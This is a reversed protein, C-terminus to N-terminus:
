VALPDSLLSLTLIDLLKENHSFLVQFAIPFLKKREKGGKRGGWKGGDKGGEGERGEKRNQAM